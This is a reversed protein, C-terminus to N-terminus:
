SVNVDGCGFVQSRSPNEPLRTDESSAVRGKSHEEECSWKRSFIRLVELFSACSRDSYSEIGASEGAVVTGGGMWM